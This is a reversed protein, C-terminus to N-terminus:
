SYRLIKRFDPGQVVTTFPLPFTIWFRYRPSSWWWFNVLEESKYACDYFKVTWEVSNKPLIPRTADSSTVNVKILALHIVQRRYANSANGNLEECSLDNPNGRWRMKNLICLVPDDSITLWHWCNKLKASTESNIHRRLLFNLSLNVM